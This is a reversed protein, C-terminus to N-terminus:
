APISKSKDSIFPFKLSKKEYIKLNGGKEKVTVYKDQLIEFNSIRKASEEINKYLAGQKTIEMIKPFDSFAIRLKRPCFGLKKNLEYVQSFVVVSIDQDFETLLGYVANPAISLEKIVNGDESAIRSIIYPKGSEFIQRELAEKKEKSGFFVIPMKEINVDIRMLEKKEEIPEM